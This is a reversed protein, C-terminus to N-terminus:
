VVHEKCAPVIECNLATYFYLHRRRTWQLVQNQQANGGSAAILLPFFCARDQQCPKNVTDAVVLYRTSKQEIILLAYM